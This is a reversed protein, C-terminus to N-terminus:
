AEDYFRVYDVEMRQPFQTTEDPAGPWEGGVAVNMILYYEYQDFPWTGGADQVESKTVSHFQEGDVFWKLQDPDWVLSFVHFDDAFVGSDLTYNGHIGNQGLWGPGHATGWVLDPDDGILEMIDIEGGDPWGAQDTLLWLAPWMGQGQPLKARIDIRGYQKTLNGKTLLKSSTYDYTGYEDSVTEERAEIVLRDNEIWRNDTSYYQLENNWWGEGGYDHGNGIHDMWVSTDLSGQDFEDSWTQTWSRGDLGDLPDDGGGDGGDSGDPTAVEFWNLNWGGDGVSVRLVQEGVSLSVDEVTVTTWSQWGGTDPITVTDTVDTGDSQVTLTGGGISATRLHLDYTGAEAVSVTYELWEGATTWGVNYEGGTADDVPELDVAEDTRAAGGQNATTSDSYAVGQGGDDYHQAQVRGPLAHPGDLYPTQEATDDGDGGDVAEVQEWPGWQSAGPEDGRTWWQAEWIWGDHTARDGSTYTANADWQPVQQATAAGAGLATGTTVAVTGLFDRRRLRRDTRASNSDNTTPTEDTM